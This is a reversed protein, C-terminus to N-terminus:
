LGDTPRRSYFDTVEGQYIGEQQLQHDQPHYQKHSMLLLDNPWLHLRQFLIEVEGEAAHSILLKDADWSLAKMVVSGQDRWSCLSGVELIRLLAESRNICVPPTWHTHSSSNSSCIRVKAVTVYVELHRLLKFTSLTVLMPCPFSWVFRELIAM